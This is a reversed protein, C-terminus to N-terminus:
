PANTGHTFKTKLTHFYSRNPNVIFKVFRNRSKTIKVTQRPSVDVLEQGDLTLAVHDTKNSSQISIMTTDPLVLPRHNLGHPCIPTLAFSKVQPHVIPGGAALSYATSGVPSSVILGDGALYFIHEEDVEASLYLMRSIDNKSFVADNLFFGKYIKKKKQFVETKYLPHKQIKYKGKLVPELEDFLETKSFEAIFGLHGMNVGFIPPSSKTSKRSIGLLTGDGGLSIILDSLSHSKEEAIFEINKPLSKIFKSIRAEEKDIFRIRKKRKQLWLILHPLVSSLQPINDPKLIITIDQITSNQPM